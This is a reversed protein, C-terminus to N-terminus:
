PARSSLSLWDKWYDRATGGIKRRLARFLVVPLVGATDPFPASGAM